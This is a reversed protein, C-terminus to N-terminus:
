RGVGGVQRALAISLEIDSGEALFGEPWRLEDGLGLELPRSCSGTPADILWASIAKSLYTDLASWLRLRHFLAESHTELLIRGGAKVISCFFDALAAQARPHLHAEPLEVILLSDPKMHCGAVIVPLVQSVGFGVDTLARPTGDGIISVDLRLSRNDDVLETAARTALKLYSLWWNVAGALQFDNRKWEADIRVADETHPIQPPALLQVESLRHTWLYEPTFEGDPGVGPPATRPRSYTREPRLRSPSLYTTSELAKVLGEVGQLPVPVETGKLHYARDIAIGRFGLNVTRETHDAKM